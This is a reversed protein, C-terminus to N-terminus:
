AAAIRGSSLVMEACLGHPPRLTVRLVGQHAAAAQRAFELSLARRGLHQPADIAQAGALRQGWLNATLSLAEFTPLDPAPGGDTVSVTWGGRTARVRILVEGGPPTVAVAQVVLGAVATEITDARGSLPAWPLPAELVVAVGSRQTQSAVKDIATEISLSLDFEETPSALGDGARLLGLSLEIDTLAREALAAVEEGSATTDRLPMGLDHMLLDRLRRVRLDTQQALFEAHLQTHRQRDAQARQEMQALLEYAEQWRAQSCLLRLQLAPVWRDLPPYLKAQGAVLIDVDRAVDNLRHEFFALHARALVVALYNGQDPGIADLVDWWRRAALAEGRLLSMVVIAAVPECADFPMDARLASRAAQRMCRLAQTFSTRCEGGALPDRLLTLLTPMARQMLALGLNIMIKIPSWRALLGRREHVLRAGESLAAVAEDYLEVQVLVAGTNNWVEIECGVHGGYQGLALARRLAPMAELARGENIFASSVVVLCRQTLVLPADAPLHATARYAHAAVVAPESNTSMRRAFLELHALVLTVARERAPAAAEAEDVLAVLADIAASDDLGPTSGMLARLRDSWRGCQKLHDLADLPLGLKVEETPLLHDRAPPSAPLETNTMLLLDHWLVKGCVL